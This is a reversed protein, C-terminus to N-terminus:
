PLKLLNISIQNPKNKVIDFESEFPLYGDLELRIKHKGETINTDEYPTTGVEAGDIFVKAGIPNSNISLYISARVLVVDRELADGKAITITEKYPIYQPYSIVLTYTNPEIDKKTLPTTGINVGNLYVTAGKPISNISISTTVPELNAMIDIVESDKGQIAQKWTSFNELKVEVIHIESVTLDTISIPTKGRLVGDVYVNADSPNSSVNVTFVAHELIPNIIVKPNAKTLNVREVYDKYGQLKVSVEYEKFPLNNIVIPTEGKLENDIYVSAGGPFSNVVISGTGSLFLRLITFAFIFLLLLIITIGLIKKM